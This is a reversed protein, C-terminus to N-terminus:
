HEPDIPPSIIERLAALAKSAANLGDELGHHYGVSQAHRSENSAYLGLNDIEDQLENMKVAAQGLKKSDMIERAVFAQVDDHQFWEDFGQETNSGPQNHWWRYFSTCLNKILETSM